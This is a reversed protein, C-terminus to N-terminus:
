DCKKRKKINSQDYKRRVDDRRRRLVERQRCLEERRRDREQVRRHHRECYSDYVNQEYHKRRILEDYEDKSRANKKQESLYNLNM